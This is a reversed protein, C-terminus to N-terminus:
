DCHTDNTGQLFAVVRCASADNNSAYAGLRAFKDDDDINSGGLFTGARNAVGGHLEVIRRTSPALLWGLPLHFDYLDLIFSSTSVRKDCEPYEACLEEFGGM